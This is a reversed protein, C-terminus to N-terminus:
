EDKLKLGQRRLDIYAWEAEGSEKFQDAFCIRCYRYHPHHQPERHMGIWRKNETIWEHLDPNRDHQWEIYSQYINRFFNM